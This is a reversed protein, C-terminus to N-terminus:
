DRQLNESLALRTETELETYDKPLGFVAEAFNPHTYIPDEPCTRLGESMKAGRFSPSGKYRVRSSGKGEQAGMTPLFTHEPAIIPHALPERAWAIGNQMVGAAPWRELYLAWGEILCNQWTRWSGTNQDYWAFPKLWRGSSDQVPEPLEPVNERSALIKVLSDGLSVGGRLNEVLSEISWSIPKMPWHKKLIKHCFKDVECFGIVEHGAQELGLAYMGIGSFLDLWKM